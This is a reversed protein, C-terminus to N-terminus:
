HWPSSQSIQREPKLLRYGSEFEIDRDILFVGIWLVVSAIVSVWVLLRGVTKHAIALRGLRARDQEAIRRFLALQILLLVSLITSFLACVILVPRLFPFMYQLDM